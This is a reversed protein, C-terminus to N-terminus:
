SEWISNKGNRWSSLFSTEMNQRSGNFIHVREERADCIYGVFPTGPVDRAPLRQHWPNLGPDILSSPTIVFSQLEPFLKLVDQVVAEGLLGKLPAALHTLHSFAARAEHCELLAYLQSPQSLWLHTIRAFFVRTYGAGFDFGRWDVCGPFVLLEHPTCLQSCTSAYKSSSLMDGYDCLAALCGPLVAIRELHRCPVLLAADSATSERMWVERVHAAIHPHSVLFQALSHATVRRKLVLTHFLHPLTISHVLRSVRSLSAGTVKSDQAACELIQIVLESPLPPFPDINAGKSLVEHNAVAMEEESGIHRVQCISAGTLNSDLPDEAIHM